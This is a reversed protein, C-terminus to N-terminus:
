MLTLSIPLLNCLLNIVLHLIFLVVFILLYAPIPMLTPYFTMINFGINLARRESSKEVSFLTPIFSDAMCVVPPVTGPLLFLVYFFTWLYCYAQCTQPGALFPRLPTLSHPTASAAPSSMLSIMAGPDELCEEAEASSGM